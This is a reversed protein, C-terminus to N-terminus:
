YLASYLRDIAVACIFDNQSLGLVAHTTFTVHCYNYGVALDPHHNETQALWAIANVFMMTHNFDAFSFSRLLGSHEATLQWDPHLQPLLQRIEAASLPGTLDTAPICKM